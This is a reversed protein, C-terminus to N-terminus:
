PRFDRRLKEEFAAQRERQKQYPPDLTSVALSGRLNMNSAKLQFGDCKIGKWSSDAQDVVWDTAPPLGFSDALRSIWDDVRRWVPASPPPQYEVVYQVVRGDLFRFRFDEIGAFRDKTSYDRPDVNINVLGFSPYGEARGIASRIQDNNASPFLVLLEDTNMGLKVGRVAPAKAVPLTCPTIGTSATQGYIPIATLLFTVACIIRKM